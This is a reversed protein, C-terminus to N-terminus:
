DTINTLLPYLVFLNEKEGIHPGFNQARKKDEKEQQTKM